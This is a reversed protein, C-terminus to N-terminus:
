NGAGVLMFPAWYVPHTDRPRTAPDDLIALMARRMAEARSLEPNSRQLAFLSTTLDVAADSYVPWHSILLNRAGAFFFASALGSLGEETDSRGSATNCASLIVLDANLKLGAIESTTLLGDDGGVPARPPTLVLGAEHPGLEGAILGHTAFSIVSFDELRRAENLQRVTSEKADAQLLVRGDAGFEAAIDRLECRTEPLAALDRLSSAIDGGRLALQPTAQSLGALAVDPTACEYPVPGDAQRGILPDGIGLFSGRPRTTEVETRLAHFGAVSPIVSVAFDRLLWRATSPTTASDPPDTILLHFPLAMTAADPVFILHRKGSLDAALPGLLALHIDQALEFDFTPGIPETATEELVFGGRTGASGRRLCRPDTLAAECRLRQAMRALEASPPLGSTLVGERTVVVLQGVAQGTAVRLDTSAFVIMAEDPSLLRQVEDLAVPAATGHSAYAPYEDAIRAELAAANELQRSMELRMSRADQGSAAADALDARVETISAQTEQLSRIQRGLDPAVQWRATAQGLATGAVTTNVRQALEFADNILQPTPDAAIQRQLAELHFPLHDSAGTQGVSVQTAAEFISLASATRGEDLAIRGSLVMLPLSWEDVGPNIGRAADILATAVTAHGQEYSLTASATLLSLQLAEPMAENGNVGGVAALAADVDLPRGSKEDQNLRALALAQALQDGPVPPPDLELNTRDLLDTGAQHDGSANLISILTLRAIALERSAPGFHGSISDTFRRAIALAADVRGLELEVEATSKQIDFLLPEAPQGSAEFAVEAQVLLDRAAEIRGAERALLAQEYRAWATFYPDPRGTRELASLVSAVQAEAADGRGQLALANTQILRMSLVGPHTQGYGAVAADILSARLGLAEGFRGDAELVAVGMDALDWPDDVLSALFGPPYVALQRLWHAAADDRGVSANAHALLEFIPPLRPDHPDRGEMTRRAAHDAAAIDGSLLPDFVDAQLAQWPFSVRATRQREAEALWKDTIATLDGLEGARADYDDLVESLPAELAPWNALYDGLGQHVLDLFTTLGEVPRDLRLEADMRVIVARATLESFERGLDELQYLAETALLSASAHDGLRNLASALEVLDVMYSESPSPDARGLRVRQVLTQVQEQSQADDSALHIIRSPNARLPDARGSNPIAAVALFICVGAALLIQLAFFRCTRRLRNPALGM